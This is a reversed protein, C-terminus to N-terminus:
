VAQGVDQIEGCDRCVKGDVLSLIYWAFMPRAVPGVRCLFVLFEVELLPQYVKQCGCAGFFIQVRDLSVGLPVKAWVQAYSLFFHFFILPQEWAAFNVIAGVEGQTDKCIVRPRPAPLFLNLSPLALAFALAFVLALAFALALFRLRPFALALAIICGCDRFPWRHM